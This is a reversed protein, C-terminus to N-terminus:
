RPLIWYVTSSLHGILYSAKHEDSREESLYSGSSRTTLIPPRETNHRDDSREESLYRGTGKKFQIHDKLDEPSEIM